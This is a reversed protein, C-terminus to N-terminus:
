RWPVAQGRRQGVVTSPGHPPILRARGSPHLPRHRDPLHSSLPRKDASWRRSGARKGISTPTQGGPDQVARGTARAPIMTPNATMARHNAM